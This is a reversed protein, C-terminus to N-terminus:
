FKFNKSDSAMDDPQTSEKKNNETKGDGQKSGNQIDYGFETGLLENGTNQKNEKIVTYLQKPGNSEPEVNEEKRSKIGGFESIAVKAPGSDYDINEEDNTYRIEENEDAEEDSREGEDDEDDEDSSEVVNELKGWYSKGEDDEKYLMDFENEFNAPKYGDNSYEMDLGPILLNEYAPPKGINLMIDLWPPPVSFSNEQMGLAHRLTNSVVGPKIKAIEDAYEDTTERGEFYIDGYGFLRPKSQFKFFADHLKQYDIDLKGMKPQVRERQQQKLTLDDNNRMDQIGTDRIFKPLQFPQKEVGRRSSLYERKSSWHGPVQVVNPQSKINVLIYPDHADVDYWEVVQPRATSAKLTALPIRNRKRLQRNSLPEEEEESDSENPEDEANNDDSENLEGRETTPNSQISDNKGQFKNFIDQFQIFLPDTEIEIGEPLTTGKSESHKEASPAKESPIQTTDRTSGEVKRLKAKERRVQNKSRKQKAM